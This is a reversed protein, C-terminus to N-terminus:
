PTPTRRRRARRTPPRARSHRPPPASPLPQRPWWPVGDHPADCPDGRLPRHRRIRLADACEATPLRTMVLGAIRRTGANDGLLVRETVSPLAIERKGDRVAAVPPSASLVAAAGGRRGFISASM